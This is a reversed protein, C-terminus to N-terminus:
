VTLLLICSLGCVTFFNTERRGLAISKEKLLLLSSPFTFLFFNKKKLMKILQKVYIKLSTKLQAFYIVICEM